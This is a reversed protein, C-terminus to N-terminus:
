TLKGNNLTVIKYKNYTNLFGEVDSEISELMKKNNSYKNELACQHNKIKKLKSGTLENILIAYGLLNEELKIVSNLLKSENQAINLHKMEQDVIAAALHKVKKKLKKKEANSAKLQASVSQKKEIRKVCAEQEVIALAIEDRIDQHIYKNKVKTYITTEGVSKGNEYKANKVVMAITIPGGILVLNALSLRMAEKFENKRKNAISPIKAVIKKNKM